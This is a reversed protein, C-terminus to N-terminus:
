YAGPAYAGFGNVIMQDPNVFNEGSPSELLLSIQGEAFRYNANRVLPPGLQTAIGWPEGLVRKAERFRTKLPILYQVSTLRRSLSCSPANWCALASARRSAVCGVSLVALFFCLIWIEIQYKDATVEFGAV